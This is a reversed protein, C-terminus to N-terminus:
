EFFAYGFWYAVAIAAVGIQVIPRTSQHRHPATHRM